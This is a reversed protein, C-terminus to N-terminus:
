IAKNEEDKDRNQPLAKTEKFGKGHRVELKALNSFQIDELDWGEFQIMMLTMDLLSAIDLVFDASYESQRCITVVTDMMDALCALPVMGSTDPLEFDDEFRNELVDIMNTLEATKSIYYLLDGLEEKIGTKIPGEKPRGYGLHKKYWGSLEGVEEM